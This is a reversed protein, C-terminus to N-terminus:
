THITATASIQLPQSFFASHFKITHKPKLLPHIFIYKFLEHGVTFRTLAGGMGDAVYYELGRMQYYGYGFLGQSYFNDTYPFKISAAAEVTAFTKPSFTKAYLGHASLQWL